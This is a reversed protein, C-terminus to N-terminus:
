VAYHGLLIGNIDWQIGHIDWLIWYVYYVVQGVKLTTQPTPDVEKHLIPAVM